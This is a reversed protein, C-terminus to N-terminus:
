RIIAFKHVCDNFGTAFHVIYIGSALDKPEWWMAAYPSLPDKSEYNGPRKLEGASIEEVLKGSITYIRIIPIADNILRYSFWIQEHEGVIFPNPYPPLLSDTPVPPLPPIRCQITRIANPVGWGLSDNPTQGFGMTDPNVTQYLSSRIRVCRMADHNTASTDAELVLACMGAVLATACSTGGTFSFSDLQASEPPKSYHAIRAIHYTAVEPKDRGDVLPGYAAMGDYQGLTDTAGVALISDADAPAVLWDQPSTIGHLDRNGVANVVLVGLHAAIDAARTTVATNGDLEDWDVFRYGLSSSVIDAGLGESWELGKVWWDEEVKYEFDDGEATNIKETKGLIFEANFATGYLQGPAYGGILSLMATGHYMQGPIDGEQDRTTDDGCSKWLKRGTQTLEPSYCFGSPTLTDTPIGSIPTTGASWRFSCVYGHNEYIVWVSDESSAIRVRGISPHSDTFLNVSQSWGGSDRYIYTINHLPFDNRNKYVIHIRGGAASIDPSQAYTGITTDVWTTGGDPSEILLLQHATDTLATFLSDSSAALSLGTIPNTLDMATTTDWNLGNVSQALKLKDTSAWVLQFNGPTRALAPWLSTAVDQSVNVVAGHVSSWIFIDENLGHANYIDQWAVLISDGSTLIASHTPHATNGAQCESVNVPNSWNIGGDDTRTYYIEQNLASDIVQFAAYISGSINEWADINEVQYYNVPTVMGEYWLWEGSVFDHEAVLNLRLTDTSFARHRLEFGTDLIGIKVGAGTYGRSHADPIGLMNLQQFSLGYDYVQPSKIFKGKPLSFEFRPVKKTYVAVDRIEKVFPLNAVKEVHSSPIEFSACNLWNCSVRHHAGLQKIEEVYEQFVPLDRWGVVGQGPLVKERRRIAEPSLSRRIDELAENYTSKTTFGKDKFFVWVLSNEEAVSASILIFLGMLVVIKKFM